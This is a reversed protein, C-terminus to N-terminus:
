VPQKAGKRCADNCFYKGDSLLAQQSANYTGCTPCPLMKDRVAIQPSSAEKKNKKKPPQLFPRVVVRFVVYVILFILILRMLGM